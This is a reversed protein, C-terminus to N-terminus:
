ETKPEWSFDILSKEQSLDTYILAAGTGPVGNLEGALTLRVNYGAVVQTESKLVKEITIEQGDLIMTEVLFGLNSLTIEAKVDQETWGGVLPSDPNQDPMPEESGQCALVSILLLAIINKM